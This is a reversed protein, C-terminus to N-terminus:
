GGAKVPAPAAKEEPRVIKRVKEFSEATNDGFKFNAYEQTSKENPAKFVYWLGDPDKRQYTTDLSKHLSYCTRAKASGTRATWYADMCLKGDDRVVWNGEGISAGEGGTWARLQRGDKAFYAAGDKWLWTRDAYLLLIEFASLPAAATVAAQDVQDNPVSNVAGARM